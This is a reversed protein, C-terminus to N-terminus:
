YKIVGSNTGRFVIGPINFDSTYVRCPVVIKAMKSEIIPQTLNLWGILYLGLGVYGLSNHVFVCVGISSPRTTVNIRELM